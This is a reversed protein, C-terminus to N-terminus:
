GPLKGRRSLPMRLLGSLTAPDGATEVGYRLTAFDVRSTYTGFLRDWVPFFSVFNRGLDERRPSHHLRHYVSDAFLARLPGFDLRTDAHIFKGWAAFFATVVPVYSSGDFRVLLAIPLAIPLIRLADELPHHYSNVANLDRIAHHVAHFRWLLPMAHQLRHFWYYLVDFLLAGAFLSAAVALPGHDSPTFRILPSVGALNVLQQIAVVSWYGAAWALVWGLFGLAYSWFAPRRGPSMLQEALMLPLATLVFAGASAAVHRLLGGGYPAWGTAGEVARWLLHAGELGALLLAVPVAAAAFGLGGARGLAIAGERM